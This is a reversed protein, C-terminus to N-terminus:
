SICMKIITFLQYPRAMITPRKKQLSAQSKTAASQLYDNSKAITNDINQM